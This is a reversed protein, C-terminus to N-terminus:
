IKEFFMPWSWLLEVRPTLIIEYEKLAAAFANASVAMTITPTIPQAGSHFSPLSLQYIKQWFCSPLVYQGVNYLRTCIKDLLEYKKTAAQFKQLCKFHSDFIPCYDVATFPVDTKVGTGWEDIGCEMQLSMLLMINCLSWSHDWGLLMLTHNSTNTTSLVKM